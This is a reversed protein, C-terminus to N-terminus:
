KGTGKIANLKTVMGQNRNNTKSCIKDSIIDSFLRCSYMSSYLNVPVIVRLFPFKFGLSPAAEAEASSQVM